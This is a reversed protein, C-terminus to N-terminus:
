RMKDVVQILGKGDINSFLKKSGTENPFDSANGVFLTNTLLKDKNWVIPRFEYKGFNHSENFGGSITGGQKQYLFPDYKSYFLYFMYSQYLNDKNSFVIKDYFKENNLVFKIASSLSYQFSASQNKPFSYFYERYFDRLFYAVVVVM